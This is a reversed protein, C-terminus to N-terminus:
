ISNYRIWQTVVERELDIIVMSIRSVKVVDLVIPDFVTRFVHQPIALFIPWATAMREIMARYILYQGLSIYLDTTYTDRDGFCKIEAVMIQQQNGNVGRSLLLDVYAARTEVYLPYHSRVVRWGDKQLARVVQDHCHDFAPM